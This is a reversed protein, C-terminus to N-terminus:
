LPQYIINASTENYRLEKVYYIKSSSPCPNDKTRGLVVNYLPEDTRSDETIYYLVESTTNFVYWIRYEAVSICIALESADM